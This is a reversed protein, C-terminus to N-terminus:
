CGHVAAVQLEPTHAVELLGRAAPGDSRAGRCLCGLSARVNRTSAMIGLGETTSASISFVCVCRARTDLIAGHIQGFPKGREGVVPSGPDHGFEVSVVHHHDFDLALEAPMLLVVCIIEEQHQDAADGDPHMPTVDIKARSLQKDDRFAHRMTRQGLLRRM